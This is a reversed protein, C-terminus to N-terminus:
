PLLLGKILVADPEVGCFDNKPKLSQVLFANYISIQLWLIYQKILIPVYAQSIKSEGFLSYM